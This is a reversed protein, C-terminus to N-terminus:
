LSIKSRLTPDEQIGIEMKSQDKIETVPSKPNNTNVIIADKKVIIEEGVSALFIFKYILTSFIAAGLTSM